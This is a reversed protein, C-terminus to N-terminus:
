PLTVVQTSKWNKWQNRIDLTITDQWLPKRSPHYNHPLNTIDFYVPWKDHVIIKIFKDIAAKRRFAPPESNAPVPLRALLTPLLTSLHTALHLEVTCWGVRHPFVSWVTACYDTVSYCLALASTWLTEANAGWSSGALKMLLNNRNM